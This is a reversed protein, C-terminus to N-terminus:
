LLYVGPCVCVCVLLSKTHMSSYSFNCAHMSVIYYSRAYYERAVQQVGSVQVGAFGAGVRTTYNRNCPWNIITVRMAMRAAKAMAETGPAAEKEGSWARQGDGELHTVARLEIAESTASSIFTAMLAFSVVVSAVM